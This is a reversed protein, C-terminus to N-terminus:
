RAYITIVADLMGAAMGIFPILFFSIIMMFLFWFKYCVRYCANGARNMGHVWEMEKETFYESKEYIFIRHEEKQSNCGMTQYSCNTSNPSMGKKDDCHVPAGFPPTQYSPPYQYTPQEM